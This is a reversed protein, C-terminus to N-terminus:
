SQAVRDVVATAVDDVSLVATDLELHEDTWPLYEAGRVQVQEWRPEAVHKFGRDRGGLRREHERPDSNVLHVFVLDADTAKAANRWTQRAEDSDNVADVVVDHGLRLNLEAMVRAAEYAAVGVKWSAPLGCGIISEEIADISLHVAGVRRAVLAAASTKGVGPLGSLVLLRSTM